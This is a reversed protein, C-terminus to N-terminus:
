TESHNPTTEKENQPYEQKAYATPSVHYYKKFVERFYKADNFGTLDAIEGISYQATKLLGTAKKLRLLRVYDAPAEGTLAKIKNYFGTRSMHMLSCLVDVNFDPDAMHQEVQQQVQSIFRHDLETLGDNAQEEVTDRGQELAAYRQQLRQRNALIGAITARLVGIHFPKTVYEDAGTQLGEIIQQEDSLATLLIVPIHSTEIHSKVQRCLADGRMGPMMIDSILLQPPQKKLLEYAQQGDACATVEYQESLTECLYNRLDDNDEAIMLRPLEQDTQREHGTEKQGVSPVPFPHGKSEDPNRNVIAKAYYQEAKPFTVKIRTGAGEKSSFTIKGKHIKVLKSVLLLGIGSGTIKLNIANSARYHMKFLRKQETAPIGIGNDRVEISWCDADETAIVDIAGETATYKLANSLLNKLISDMKDKDLWVQLHDFRKELTLRIHRVHAFSSFAEVTGELYDGLDYPCVRLQANFTDTREFNILNTTLQLLTNVNRLATEMSRKGKPSLPESENLEELPAKILTLPTRIDHATNVFFRIKEDSTKRQKRLSYYRLALGLLLLGFLTYLMFAWLSLWVPKEVIIKMTREELLIRQDENSLAMIRLNYTGPSLNTFRITSERDPRSWKDYFGELKWSYLVLSPYDYNISSVKLSFINQNYKLRLTRTQDLEEKLPSGEDGAYVTQYFIRLDSLVMKSTYSEPFHRHHSFIIAGDTSGLIYQGNRCLTGSSANFHNTSLGQEHTWNTFHPREPYFTSVANETTLVVENREKDYLISYISNSILASNAKHYHTFPQKDRENYVLLGESGTGIYLTHDPTQCLSYIYYSTIPLAIRRSKGNAKNLLYLGNSTGIWLHATDKEAIATIGSLQEYLRIKKRTLDVAKLNHYGGSWVIGDSDKLMARIYKDSRINLHSFSSPTFYSSRRSCKDIEYLGSSYGGGWVVGPMVECLSLFTHNKIPLSTDRDSLFSSWQQTKREYLSIGNNTAFWLDGESDELVDNVQNNVLSQSNGIAHKLWHFRDYRNSFITVGFPYAAMWIRQEEDIFIDLINNGNLANLHDYDATLYPKCAYTDTHVHYVGVGDTALLVEHDSLAQIRNINIDVLQNDLHTVAQRRVDLAYVGRQFTGIFLKGSPAHYFLQSVQHHIPEQVPNALKRGNWEMRYLGKDTGIYYHAADIQVMHTVMEHIPNALIHTQRSHIDYLYFAHRTCLWIRDHLDIFGFSTPSPENATQQVPLKRMPQFVDHGADYRFLTGDHGINWLIGEGDLAIRSLHMSSTIEKGEKILKYKKIDKGNYRDIGEHTLFWVYGKKDKQIAYVRRSSLGEEVGLYRYVQGVTQLPVALLWLLLMLTFSKM